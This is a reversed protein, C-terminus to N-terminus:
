HANRTGLRLGSGLQEVVRYIRVPDAAATSDLFNVENTTATAFAGDVAFWDPQLVNTKYELFYTNGATATSDLAIGNTVINLSLIQLAPVATFRASFNNTLDGRAVMVWGNTQNEWFFNESSGIAPPDYFLAGAKETDSLGSFQVTWTLTDSPVYVSLNSIEVTQINTSLAFSGSDYLLTGPTPV